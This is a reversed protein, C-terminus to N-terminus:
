LSAAIVFYRPMPPPKVGMANPTLDPRDRIQVFGAEKLMRRTDGATHFTFRTPNWLSRIAAYVTKAAVEARGVVGEPDPEAVLLTGGTRLRQRIDRLLALLPAPEIYMMVGFLMALDFDAEAPPMDSVFGYEAGTGSEPNAIVVRTGPPLAARSRFGGATGGVDLIRAPRGVPLYDQVIRAVCGAHSSPSARNFVANGGFGVGM